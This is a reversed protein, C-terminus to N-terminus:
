SIGELFQPFKKQWEKTPITIVMGISVPLFIKLFFGYISSYFHSVNIL